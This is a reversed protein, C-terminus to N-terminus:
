AAPSLFQHDEQSRTLTTSPTPQNGFVSGAKSEQSFTWKTTINWEQRMNGTETQQHTLSKQTYTWATYQDTTQPATQKSM